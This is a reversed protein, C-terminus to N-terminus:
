TIDFGLFRTLFFDGFVEQTGAAAREFAARAKAQDIQHTM